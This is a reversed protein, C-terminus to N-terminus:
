LRKVPINKLFTNLTSLDGRHVEQPSGNSLSLHPSRIYIQIIKDLYEIFAVTNKLKCYRSILLRISKILQKALVVKIPSRSHYLMKNHKLLVKEARPNVLESGRDTQIKGYGDQDLISEIVKSIEIDRKTRM